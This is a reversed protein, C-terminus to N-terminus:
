LIVRFPELLGTDAQKGVLFQQVDKNNNEEFLGVDIISLGNVDGDVHDVGEEVGDFSVISGDGVGEVVHVEELAQLNKEVALYLGADRAGQEEDIM